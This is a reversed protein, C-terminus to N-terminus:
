IGFIDTPDYADWRFNLQFLLFSVGFVTCHECSHIFVGPLIHITKTDVVFEISRKM